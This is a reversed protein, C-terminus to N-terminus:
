GRLSRPVDCRRGHDAAGCRLHRCASSERLLGGPTLGGVRVEVSLAGDRQRLEVKGFAKQGATPALRVVTTSGHKDKGPHGHFPHGKHAAAVAPLAAACAVAALAVVLRSNRM